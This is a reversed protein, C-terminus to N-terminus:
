KKQASRGAVKGCGLMSPERRRHLGSGRFGGIASMDIEAAFENTEFPNETRAVLPAAVTARGFM